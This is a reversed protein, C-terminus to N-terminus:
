RRCRSCFPFSAAPAAGGAGRTRRRQDQQEDDAHRPAARARAVLENRWADRDRADFPFSSRARRAFKEPSGKEGNCSRPSPANIRSRLSITSRRSCLQEARVAFDGCCCSEVAINRLDTSCPCAIVLVVRRSRLAASKKPAVAATFPQLAASVSGTLGGSSPPSAPRPPAELPVDPTPPDFAPAAPALAPAEPLLPPAPLPPAAPFVPTAPL